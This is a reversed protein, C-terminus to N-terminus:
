YRTDLFVLIMWEGYVEKKYDYMPPEFINLCRTEDFYNDVEGKYIFDNTLVM